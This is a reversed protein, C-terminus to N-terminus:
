GVWWVVPVVGPEVDSGSFVAIRAGVKVPLSLITRRPQPSVVLGGVGVVWAGRCGLSLVWPVVSCVVWGVAAVEGSCWSWPGALCIRVSISSSGVSNNTGWCHVQPSITLYTTDDM